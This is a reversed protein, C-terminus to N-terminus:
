ADPPLVASPVVIFSGEIASPKPLTCELRVRWKGPIDAAVDMAFEGDVPNLAYTRNTGEPTKVILSVNGADVIENASNKFTGNIQVTDGLLYYGQRISM